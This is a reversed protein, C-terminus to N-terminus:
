CLQLALVIVLKRMDGGESNARELDAQRLRSFLIRYLSSLLKGLKM